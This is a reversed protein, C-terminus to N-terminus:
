QCVLYEKRGLKNTQIGLERPGLSEATKIAYDKSREGLGAHLREGAQMGWDIAHM